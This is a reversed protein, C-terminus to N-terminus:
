GTRRTVACALVADAAADSHLLRVAQEAADRCSERVPLRVYLGAVQQHKGSANPYTVHSNLTEPFTHCPLGQETSGHVPKSHLHLRM